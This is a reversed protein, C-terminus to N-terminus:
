RQEQSFGSACGDTSMCVLQYKSQGIATEANQRSCGRCFWHLAEENNCHIMRNLPYEGFCCGCDAMTGEAQAKLLNAEEELELRREEERNADARKRVRRAAQLERLIEIDERNYISGPIPRGDLLIELRAEQYEELMKRKVKLKNYPPNQSDFTRHAQELVQYTPFLCFGNQYLCTDIFTM